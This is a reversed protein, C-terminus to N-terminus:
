DSCCFESFISDLRSGVGFKRLDAFTSSAISRGLVPDVLGHFKSELDDWQMPNGPNGLALPTETAITRGDTLTVVMSAATKPMEPSIRLIVKATLQQLTLM